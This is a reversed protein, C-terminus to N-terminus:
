SEREGEREIGKVMGGATDADKRRADTARTIGAAAAALIHARSRQAVTQCRAAGRRAGCNRTLCRM